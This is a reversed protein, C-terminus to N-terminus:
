PAVGSIFSACYRITLLLAVFGISIALRFRFQFDERLHNKLEVPKKM